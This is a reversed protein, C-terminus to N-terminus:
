VTNAELQLEGRELLFCPAHRVVPLRPQPMSPPLGWWSKPSSSLCQGERGLIKEFTEESTREQCVERGRKRASQPHRWQPKSTEM